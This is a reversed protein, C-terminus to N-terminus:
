ALYHLVRPPISGVLAPHTPTSIGEPGPCLVGIATGDDLVIPMGWMGRLIDQAGLVVLNTGLLLLNAGAM